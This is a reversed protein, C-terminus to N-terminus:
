RGQVDRLEAYLTPAAGVYGASALGREDVQTLEAAAHRAEEVADAEIEYLTLFRPASQPEFMLVRYLEYRTAHIVGPVSAAARRYHADYWANFQEVDRTDAVDFREVFLFHSRGNANRGPPSFPASCQGFYVREMVKILDTGHGVRDMNWSAMLMDIITKDIAPSGINYLAVYHGAEGPPAAGNSATEPLTQGRRARWYGPVELVDPIDIRDYWENFQAERTADTNVTRVMMLWQREARVSSDTGAARMHNEVSYKLFFDAQEYDPYLARISRMAAETSPAAATIRTFDDIYRVMRDFLRMDTADGHGPYVRPNLAAYKAKIRLLESRWKSVREGDIDDGMWPHVRNYGLDALFLANLDKSYITTMHAAETPPYDSTLELTGGGELTLTNAGLVEITHEYDFGGPNQVSRPRLAPDLAPEAATAGGQDMYMAYAKIDQKIAESAVVIRAQPFEAHLLAMGTFHDTHGHSILITTLPLHKAKILDVLKSAESAKRQVDMVLLSQGNSFIFSNVSALGGKYVEVQLKPTAAPAATACAAALLVFSLCRWLANRLSM